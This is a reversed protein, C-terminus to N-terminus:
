RQEVMEHPELLRSKEGSITDPQKGTMRDESTEADVVTTARHSPLRADDCASPTEDIADGLRAPHDLRDFQFGFAPPVRRVVITGADAPSM